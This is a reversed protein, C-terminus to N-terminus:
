RLVKIEAAYITNGNFDDTVPAVKVVERFEESEAISRCLSRFIFDEYDAMDKEYLYAVHTARITVVDRNETYCFLPKIPISRLRELEKKYKKAKQRANM